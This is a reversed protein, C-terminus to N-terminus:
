GDQSLGGAAWDDEGTAARTNGGGVTAHAGAAVNSRGGSVSSFDGSALNGEGEDGGGGGSVTAMLGSALNQSGGLVVAYDGSGSGEPGARNALGGVVVALEGQARNSDGGVVVSGFGSAHGQVGGLGVATTGAATVQNGGLVVSTIGEAVNSEGGCVHAYEGPVTNYAGGSATALMGAACNYGGGLVASGEGSAVCEQGGLVASRLGSCTQDYGGAASSYPALVRNADGAVLGGFSPYSHEKGLVLNHSGTRLWPGALRPEDYGIILNGLGNTRTLVPQVAFPDGRNGNTSGQGSVIQLNVGSLRVTKRKGGAGDDLWVVSLHPLLQDLAAAGVSAQGVPGLGAARRPAPQAQTDAMSLPESATPTSDGDRVFVGRRSWFLVDGTANHLVLEDPQAGDMDVREAWVGVGQDSLGLVDTAEFLHGSGDGLLALNAERSVLYLDVHGDGNLDSLLLELADVRPLAQGLAAFRGAGLNVSVSLSGEASMLLKDPLGDATLDVLRLAPMRTRTPAAAPTPARTPVPTLALLPFLACASLLLASWM